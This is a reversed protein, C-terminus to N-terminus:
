MREPGGQEDGWGQIICEDRPNYNYFWIEIIKTCQNCEKQFDKFTTSNIVNLSDDKPVAIIKDDQEGDDLLSLVGIPIIQLETGTPMPEGIVLVDLADGDGGDSTNMLTSSLYGYNGPYPLYQIIRDQGDVQDIKFSDSEYDYEMKKNTGSPIEIIATYSEADESLVKTKEESQYCSISHLGLILIFLIFRSYRMVLFLSYKLDIM